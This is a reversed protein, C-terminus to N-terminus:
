KFFLCSIVTLLCFSKLSLCYLKESDCLLYLLVIHSRLSVFFNVHDRWASM